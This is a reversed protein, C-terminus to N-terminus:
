RYQKEPSKRSVAHISGSPQHVTPPDFGRGGCQSRPARGASSVAWERITKLGFNRQYKVLLLRGILAFAALKSYGSECDSILYFRARINKADQRRQPLRRFALGDLRLLRWSDKFLFPFPHSPCSCFSCRWCGLGSERSASEMQIM